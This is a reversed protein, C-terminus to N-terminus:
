YIWDASSRYNPFLDSLIADRLRHENEYGGRSVERMLKELVRLKTQVRTSVKELNEERVEYIGLPSDSFYSAPLTTGSTVISAPRIPGEVFQNFQVRRERREENDMALQNADSEEKAQIQEIDVGNKEVKEVLKASLTIEGGEMRLAVTKENQEIVVGQLENGNKLTLTDAFLAPSAGLTVIFFLAIKM